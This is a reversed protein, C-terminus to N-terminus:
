KILLCFCIVKLAWFGNYHETM